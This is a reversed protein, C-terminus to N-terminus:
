VKDGMGVKWERLGGRVVTKKIFLANDLMQSTRSLHLSSRGM